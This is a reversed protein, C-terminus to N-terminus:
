RGPHPCRLLFRARRHVNQHIPLSIGKQKRFPYCVSKKEHNVVSELTPWPSCFLTRHFKALPRVPRQCEQRHRSPPKDPSRLRKCLASIVSHRLVCLYAFPIPARAPQWYTLATVSADVAECEVNGSGCVEACWTDVGYGQLCVALGRELYLMVSEGNTREGSSGLSCGMRSRRSPRRSWSETSLLSREDYM